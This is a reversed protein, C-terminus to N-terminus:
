SCFHLTTHEFILKEPLFDIWKQVQEIAEQEAAWEEMTLGVAMDAVPVQLQLCLYYKVQFFTDNISVSEELKEKEALKGERSLRAFKSKKALQQPTREVVSMIPKWAMVNLYGNEEDLLATRLPISATTTDGKVLSEYLFHASTPAAVAGSRSSSFQDLKSQVMNLSGKSRFSSGSSRIKNVNRETWIKEEDSESLISDYEALDVVEEVVPDCCKLRIRGSSDISDCKYGSYLFDHNKGYMEDVAFGGCHTSFYPNVYVYPFESGLFGEGERVGHLSLGVPLMEFAGLLVALWPDTNHLHFNSIKKVPAVISFECCSSLSPEFTQSNLSSTPAIQNNPFFYECTTAILDYMSPSPKRCLFFLLM